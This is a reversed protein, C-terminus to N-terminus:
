VKNSISVEKWVIKGDQAKLTIIGHKPIEIYKITGNKSFLVFGKEMLELLKNDDNETM